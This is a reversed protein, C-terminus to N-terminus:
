CDRDPNLSVGSPLKTNCLKAKSLEKETYNRAGDLDAKTLNAGVLIVDQLNAKSLNAKTLNAGVLIVDQLNAKSLDAEALDAKTLNAGVLIVDQLNAKSLNAEALDAKTLNAEMLSTGILNAGSLIVNQLEAKRLKTESFIIHKLNSNALHSNNLNAKSFYAGELNADCLYAGELNVNGLQADELDVDNLKLSLKSVIETEILFRIVDGKRVGDDRLRRLISLTRARIVDIAASLIETEEDSPNTKSSIAILKENILLESLRDFYAQLVEEKQNSDAIEKELGSQVEIQKQQLQQLWFGIISLALPVGLLGLFDWFKKPSQEKKTTTYKTVVNKSNTEITRSIEIDEGFGTWKAWRVQKDDYRIMAITLILFFVVIGLWKGRIKLLNSLRM